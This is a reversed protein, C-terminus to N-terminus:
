GDSVLSGSGQIALYRSILTYNEPNPITKAPSVVGGSLEGGIGVVTQVARALFGSVQAQSMPQSPQSRQSTGTPQSPLFGQSRGGQQELQAIKKEAHKMAQQQVIIAQAMYYGAGPIQAMLRKIHLEAQADRPGSKVVTERLKSFFLDILQKEQTNM